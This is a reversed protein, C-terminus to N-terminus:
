ADVEVIIRWGDEDFALVEGINASRTRKALTEWGREYDEGRDEDDRRGLICSLM